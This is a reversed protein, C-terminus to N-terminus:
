IKSYTTFFVQKDDSVEFSNNLITIKGQVISILFYDNIYFSEIFHIFSYFFELRTVTNM